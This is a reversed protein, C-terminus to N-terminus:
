NESFSRLKKLSLQCAQHEHGKGMEANSHAAQIIKGACCALNPHLGQCCGHQFPKTLSCHSANRCTEAQLYVLEIYVHMIFHSWIVVAPAENLLSFWGSVFEVLVGLFDGSPLQRCGLASGWPHQAPASGRLAWVMGWWHFQELQSPSGRWWEQPRPRGWLSRSGPAFPRAHGRSSSCFYPSVQQATRQALPTPKGHFRLFSAM